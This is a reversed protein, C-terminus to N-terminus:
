ATAQPEPVPEPEPALSVEPGLEGAALEEFWGYEIPIQFRGSNRRRFEIMEPGDWYKYWDGKSEFWTMQTIRYRDDASRQVAYRTAGYRLAIPAVEAVQAAFDFQRLVTAYWKVWMVGGGEGAM